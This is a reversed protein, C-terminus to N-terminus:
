DTAYPMSVAATQKGATTRPRHTDIGLGLRTLEAPKMSILGNKLEPRVSM